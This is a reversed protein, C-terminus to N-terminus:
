CPYMQKQYWVFKNVFTSVRSVKPGQLGVFYTKVRFVHKKLWVVLRRSFAKNVGGCVFVRHKVGVM